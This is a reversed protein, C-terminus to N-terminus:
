IVSDQLIAGSRGRAMEILAKITQPDRFFSEYRIEIMKEEDSIDNSAELDLCAYHNNVEIMKDALEWLENLQQETLPM